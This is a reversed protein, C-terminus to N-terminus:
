PKQKKKTNVAQWVELGRTLAENPAQTFHAILPEEREGRGNTEAQNHDTDYLAIVNM